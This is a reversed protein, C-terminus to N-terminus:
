LSSWCIGVTTGLLVPEIESRGVLPIPRYVSASLQASLPLNSSGTGQPVSTKSVLAISWEAVEGYKEIRANLALFAITDMVTGSPAKYQM